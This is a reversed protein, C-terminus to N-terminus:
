RLWLWKRPILLRPINRRQMVHVVLPPFVHKEAKVAGLSHKTHHTRQSPRVLRRRRLGRGIVCIGCPGSVPAQPVGRWLQKPMAAAARARSLMPYKTSIATLGPVILCCRAPHAPGDAHRGHTWPTTSVVSPTLLPRPVVPKPTLSLSRACSTAYLPYARGM